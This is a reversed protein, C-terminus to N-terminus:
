TVRGLYASALRDGWFGAVVAGAAIWPGFPIMSKRGAGFLLAVIAAVGGFVIAGGAAVAVYRLGIAGLVVGIVAALKV